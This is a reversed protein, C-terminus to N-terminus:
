AGGSLYTRAQEFIKQREDRVIHTVDYRALGGRLGVKELLATEQDSLHGDALAMHTLTRVLDKCEEPSEPHAVKLEGAKAAQVLSMMRETPYHKARAYHALMKMESEDIKADANMLAVMSAMLTETDVGLGLLGAEDDLEEHFAARKRDAVSRLWADEGVVRELVWDNAGDTLPNSCYACATAASDDQPAGCSWCHRASFTKEPRTKAGKKRKLVFVDHHLMPGLPDYKKRERDWRYAAASWKVRVAAEHWGDVESIELLDVGGVASDRYYLRGASFDVVRKELAAFCADSAIKRVADPKRELLAKRRLWFAASARDEVAFPTFGPDDHFLAAVGPLDRAARTPSWECEQTIETLLWDHEASAILSSCAACKASDFAEIPAGCSPCCGEIPGPKHRTQAGSRRLFTWVEGFAAAARDGSKYKRTKADIKYNVCKASFKVEIVDFLRTTRVDAVRCEEISLGDMVEATGAAKQLGLQLQFRTFVGDSIFPRAPTMDQATWAIQIKRFAERARALFVTEDFAADRRRLREFAQAKRERSVGAAGLQITRTVARRHTRDGGRYGLYLVFVTLPIGILPQEICLRLLFYIIIGGGDGGGGSYSSGSSYSSGGSYSGGGGARALALDVAVFLLAGAALLRPPTCWARLRNM